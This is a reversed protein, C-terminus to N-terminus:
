FNRSIIRAVVPFNVEDISFFFFWLAFFRRAHVYRDRDLGRQGGGRVLLRSRKLWEFGSTISVHSVIKRHLLQYTSFFQSCIHRLSIVAHGWSM